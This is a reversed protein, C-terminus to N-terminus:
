AGVLSVIAKRGAHFERWLTLAAATTDRGKSTAVLLAKLGVEMIALLDGISREALTRRASEAQAVRGPVEAVTGSLTEPGLQALQAVANAADHLAAWRAELKDVDVPELAEPPLMEAQSLDFEHSLANM